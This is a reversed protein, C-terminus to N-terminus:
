LPLNRPASHVVPIHFSGMQQLGLMLDTLAHIAADAHDPSDGGMYGASSFACFQDELKGFRGVHHVRNIEYLASIPEARVVKGRSAHIVKVPVKRDVAKITEEVMAGGFNTEAVIRDAKFEYYAQVAISAWERPGCRVSRDALIYGDGDHGLAAVVIGIEDGNSDKNAAGSPDVGVVVRKRRADPIDELTRRNREIGEYTWLAGEVEDVFVGDLFRKRQKEPLKELSKLFEASLNHINDRPNLRATAYNERDDLPLKSLPDVGEVFIRNTWHSKGVPNLDAFFRQKIKPHVEALRTKVIGYTGYSNESAENLYISSYERGLIKDVREKDELGGLWITSRNPLEFFGDQKHLDLELGPFCLDRVRYITSNSDGAM